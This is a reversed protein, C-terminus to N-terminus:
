QAYEIHELKRFGYDVLRKLDGWMTESGMLAVIITQNNRTFQGVYTQRAKATYGTKGGDTGKIRWLAKNHNYITKGFTTEVKRQKMRSAFDENQMIKRFITALDRATSYQGKATLGSATKCVTNHAGWLKAYVTMLKSFEQESGAINEALVVSADNASGLLVANIMDDAVYLMNTDLYVKSSPMDAARKSVQMMDIKELYTLALMGTIIKITSAPQRKKDPAKSFLERGTDAEMIMVSKSSIWKGVPPLPRPPRRSSSTNDPSPSISEQQTVAQTQEPSKKATDRLVPINGAHLSPSFCFIILCFVLKQASTICQQM